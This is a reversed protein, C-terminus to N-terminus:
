RSAEALVSAIVDAADATISATLHKREARPADPRPGDPRPGLIGAPPRPARPLAYVGGAGPGRRRTRVKGRSWRGARGAVARRAVQAARARLHGPRVLVGKGDCSLVLGQGPAAQPPPRRAYFDAFDAAAARTLEQCQRKALVAGTQRRVQACAQGFSGRAA